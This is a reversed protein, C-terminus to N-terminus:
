LFRGNKLWSHECICCERIGINANNNEFQIRNCQIVYMTISKKNSCFTYERRGDIYARMRNNLINYEMADDLNGVKFSVYCRLSFSFSFPRRHM